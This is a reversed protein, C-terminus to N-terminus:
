KFVDNKIFSEDVPGRWKKKREKILEKNEERYKKSYEKRATPCKLPM